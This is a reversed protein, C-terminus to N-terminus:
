EEELDAPPEKEPELSAPLSIVIETYEGFV